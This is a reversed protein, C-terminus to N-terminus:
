RGEKQEFTNLAAILSPIYDSHLNSIILDGEPSDVPPIWVEILNGKRVVEFSNWNKPNEHKM